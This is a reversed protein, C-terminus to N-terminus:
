PVTIRGGTAPAYFTKVVEQTASDRVVMVQGARSKARAELRPILRGEYNERGNSQVEHLHLVRGSMNVVRLQVEPFDLESVTIQPQLARVTVQKLLGGTFSEHVNFFDGERGQVPLTKWPEVVARVRGGQQLELRHPTQNIVTARVPAGVVPPVPRGAAEEAAHFEAETVVVRGDREGVRFSRVLFGEDGRVAWSEGSYSPVTLTRGSALTSDLTERQDAVRYLDLDHNSRNDIVLTVRDGPIPGPGDGHLDADTIRVTASEDGITVSRVTTDGDEDQIYIIEGTESEVTVTRRAAVTAVVSKRLLGRQILRLAQRSENRITLTPGGHGHLDAEIVTSTLDGAEMKLTRFSRGPREADELEVVQGPELEITATSRAAVTALTTKGLRGPRVVLLAHVTRNVITLRPDAHGQFDAETITEVHAAARMTISRITEGPHGREQLLFVDGSRGPFSKQAQAPVVGIDRNQFLKRQLVRIEHQSRNVIQLGGAHGPQTDVADDDTVSVMGAKSGVVVTRLIKKTAADALAWTEGSLCRHRLQFGPQLTQFQAWQKTGRQDTQRIVDVVKSSKNQFIIEVQASLEAPALSALVAFVLLALIRKM